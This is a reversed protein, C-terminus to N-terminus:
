EEDRTEPVRVFVGYFLYSISHYELYIDAIFYALQIHISFNKQSNKGKLKGKRPMGWSAKSTVLEYSIKRFTFKGVYDCNWFNQYPHAM